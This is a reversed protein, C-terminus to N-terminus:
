RKAGFKKATVNQLCGLVWAGCEEATSFAAGTRPMMKADFDWSGHNVIAMFGGHEAVAISIQFADDPRVHTAQKTKM